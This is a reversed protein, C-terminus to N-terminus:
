SWRQPIAPIPSRKKEKNYTSFMKVSIDSLFILSDCGFIIVEAVLFLLWVFFFLVPLEYVTTKFYWLQNTPQDAPEHNWGQLLSTFYDVQSIM